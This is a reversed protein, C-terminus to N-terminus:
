SIPQQAFGIRIQGNEPAEFAVFLGKLFTDGFIAFPMRDNRQLGGFCTTVSIGQYNMNNGPVVIKKGAIVLAIDPLKSHCPFIYGQQGQSFQAGQVQEWYADAVLKPLYWLSTGTDAIATINYDVVTQNGVQFGTPTFDWFGKTGGIPTWVLDGKYKGKDIYGFDYTGVARRKLAATFVPQALQPRVNDFWTKQGKPKVTNLKSFALGLLGDNKNDRTFTRSVSAAAEVAQAEVSIDGITVRDLYVQGSAGSMDGYRITWSHGDLVKANSGSPDYVRNVPRTNRQEVPQLTSFVWRHIEFNASHEVKFLFLKPRIKLVELSTKLGCPKM